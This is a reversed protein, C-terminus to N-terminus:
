KTKKEKTLFEMDKLHETSKRSLFYYNSSILFNYLDYKTVVLKSRIFTSAIDGNAIWKRVREKGYGTVRQIDEVKLCESYDALKSKYYSKILNVPLKHNNKGSENKESKILDHYKLLSIDSKVYFEKRGVCKEVFDTM